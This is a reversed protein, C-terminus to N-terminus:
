NILEIIKDLVQLDKSIFTKVESYDSTNCIIIPTIIDYGAQKIANLDFEILKDGVNVKDGNKVYKKYFQGKLNITELGIHILVEVGSDSLISVAHGTEFMLVITGDVPSVVTGSTPNIAVGKGLIEEGFTPDSVESLAVVEGQVPAVIINSKDKKVGFLKNILGM